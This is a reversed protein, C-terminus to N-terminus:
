DHPKTGNTRRTPQGHSQAIAARTQVRYQEVLEVGFDGGTMIKVFLFVLVVYAGSAASSLSLLNM